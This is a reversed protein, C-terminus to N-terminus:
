EGRNRYLELHMEFAWDDLDRVGWERTVAKWRLGTLPPEEPMGEYTFSM